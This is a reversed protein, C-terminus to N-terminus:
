KNVSEQINGALERYKKDLNNVQQALYKVDRDNVIIDDAQQLRKDRDIQSRIIKRIDEPKSADRAATRAIQLDESADVVLVRNVTNQLGSEFLLPICIICYLYTIKDVRSNIERRVEPHIISELATKLNEDNFIITRLYDRRLNGNADVVDDGFTKLIKEYCPQGKDALAHSIEDADIVPVSLSSFLGAVTTKGSGIGGTM